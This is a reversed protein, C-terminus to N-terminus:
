NKGERGVRLAERRYEPLEGEGVPFRRVERQVRLIAERAGEWRKRKGTEFFRFAHATEVGHNMVWSMRPERVWFWWGKWGWGLNEMGTGAAEHLFAQFAWARVMSRDFSGPTTDRAWRTALWAHHADIDAHMAARAPLAHTGRFINSVALAQVDNFSFGNNKGYASHCLLALSDAHEPPFINHWLRVLPPGSYNPPSSHALWPTVSLDAAYGTACIVADISPLVTGDSFELTDPGLFRTLGHLSTILGARLLPILTDSAGPLSLTISPSPLLRWAPDLRGWISTMLYTLTKDSLWGALNPFHKQLFFGTQRKRWSIALDVPTNNRWTPFIYMGRRHSVYVKSAHPLINNIIDSATSSMGVVVVNKGKYKEM